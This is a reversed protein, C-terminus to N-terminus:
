GCAPPSLEECAESGAVLSLADVTVSGAVSCTAAGITVVSTVVALGTTWSTAWGTCVIRPVVRGTTSFTASVTAGTARVTSRVTPETSCVTVCTVSRTDVVAVRTECVTAGDARFAAAARGISTV